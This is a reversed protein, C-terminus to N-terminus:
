DMLGADQYYREAGPHLPISGVNEETWAESVEFSSMSENNEKLTDASEVIAETIAYATEEDLDASTVVSTRMGPLRTDEDQGQFTGGPLTEDTFGYEALADMEEDEIDLLQIDSTQALETVNPHGESIAQIWLDAAGDRIADTAVDTSTPEFSGGNGEIGSVSAGHADLVINTGAEGISGRPQSVLRVGMDQEAIDNLSEFDADAPAIPGFYYQDMGGVLARLDEQPEGEFPTGETGEYAWSSVVNFSLGLDADNSDAVIEPNGIAGSYPLIEVISGAPLAAELQEGISVGYRYWDSGQDLSAFALDTPTEGDSACGTALTLCACAGIVGMRATTYKM